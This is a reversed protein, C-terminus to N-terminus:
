IEAPSGRVSTQTLDLYGRDKEPPRFFAPDRDSHSRTDGIRLKSVGVGGLDGGQRLAFGSRCVTGGAWGETFTGGEAAVDIVARSAGGREAPLISPELGPM